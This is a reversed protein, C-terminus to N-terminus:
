RRAGKAADVSQREVFDALGNLWTAVRRIEGHTLPWDGRSDLEHARAKEFDTHEIAASLNHLGDVIASAYGREVRAVDVEQRLGADSDATGVDIVAKSAGLGADARHDDLRVVKSPTDQAVEEKRSNGRPSSARAKDLHRLANHAERWSSCEPNAEFFKRAQKSHRGITVLAARDTHGIDGLGNADIWRSFRDNALHRRRGEAIVTGLEITADVWQDRGEHVRKLAGRARTGLERDNLAKLDAPKPKLMLM